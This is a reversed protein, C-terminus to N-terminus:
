LTYGTINGASHKGGNSYLEKSNASAGVPMLKSGAFHIQEGNVYIQVKPTKKSFFGYSIQYLGPAVSVISTKCKEWLFNDPCTNIAQTEWPVQNQSHVDGSKWIWRGTCNEACLAENVLAQDDLVKRLNDKRVCGDVEQQVLKLTSNIDHVNAKQDLLTCLDKISAKLLLDKGLEDLCGKFYGSQGELDKFSCRTEM